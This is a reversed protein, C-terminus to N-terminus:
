IAAIREALARIRHLGDDRQLRLHQLDAFDVLADGRTVRWRRLRAAQPKAKSPVAVCVAIRAQKPLKPEAATPAPAHRYLGRTSPSIQM